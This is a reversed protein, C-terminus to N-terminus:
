GPFAASQRQAVGAHDSPYAARGLRCSNRPLLTLAKATPAGGSLKPNGAGTM